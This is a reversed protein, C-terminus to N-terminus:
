VNREVALHWVKIRTGSIYAVGREDLSIRNIPAAVM